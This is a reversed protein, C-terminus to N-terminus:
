KIPVGNANERNSIPNGQPSKKMDQILKDIGTEANRSNSDLYSYSEMTGRLNTNDSVYIRYWRPVFAMATKNVQDATLNRNDTDADYIVLVEEDTVLTAADEV